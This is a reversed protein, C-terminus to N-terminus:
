QLQALEREVAKREHQAVGHDHQEQILRQRAEAAREEQEQSAARCRRLEEVQEAAQRELHQVESRAAGLQAALRSSLQQDAGISRQLADAEDRLAQARQSQEVAQAEAEARRRLAESVQQGLALNQAQLGLLRQTSASIHGELQELDAAAEELLDEIGAMRVSLPRKLSNAPSRGDGAGGSAALISDAALARLKQRLGALEGQQAMGAHREQELHLVV